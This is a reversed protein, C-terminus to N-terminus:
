RDRYGYRGFANGVQFPGDPGKKKNQDDITCYLREDGAVGGPLHEAIEIELVFRPPARNGVASVM